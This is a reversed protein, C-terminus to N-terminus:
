RISNFAKRYIGALSYRIYPSIHLKIYEHVPLQKSCELDSQVRLERERQFCSAVRSREQPNRNRGFYPLHFSNTKSLRSKRSNSEVLFIKGNVGSDAGRRSGGPCGYRSLSGNGNSEFNITRGTRGSTSYTVKGRKTIRRDALRKHKMVYIKGRRWARKTGQGLSWCRGLKM